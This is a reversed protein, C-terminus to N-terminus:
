RPASRRFTLSIRVGDGQKGIAHKWHENTPPELTYLSGHTVQFQHTQWQRGTVV